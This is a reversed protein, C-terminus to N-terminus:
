LDLAKRAALAATDLEAHGHVAQAAQLLQLLAVEVTGLQGAFKSRLDHDQQAAAACKAKSDALQSGLTSERVALRRLLDAARRQQDISAAGSDLAHLLEPPVVTTIVVPNIM